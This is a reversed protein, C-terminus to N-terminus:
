VYFIKKGLNQAYKVTSATGTKEKRLYAILYCCNEVMFKNRKEFAKISYEESVVIKEDAMKLM